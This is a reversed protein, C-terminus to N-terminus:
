KFILFNHVPWRRRAVAAALRGRGARCTTREGRIRVLAARGLVPAAPREEAAAPAPGGGHEHRTLRPIPPQDPAEEVLM